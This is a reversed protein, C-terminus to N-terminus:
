GLLFGGYALWLAVPHRVGDAAPLLLYCLIATAVVTPVALLMMAAIGAVRLRPRRNALEAPSLRRVLVAGLVAGLLWGLLTTVLVGIPTGRWLNVTMESSSGPVVSLEVVMGDRHAVFSAEKTSDITWGAASMRNRALGAERGDFNEGRYTAVRHGPLDWRGPSAVGIDRVDDHWAIDWTSVRPMVEALVAATEATSVPVASTRWALWNAITGGLAGLTFVAVLLVAITEFQWRRSAPRDRPQTAREDRPTAQEDCPAGPKGM